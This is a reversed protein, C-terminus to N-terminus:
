WPIPKRDRLFQGTVSQPAEAALWVVTDAGEDVSRPASEGGMDTRVWGPCVSNVSIGKSKLSAALQRTVANLATKSISYTPADAEMDSLQGLGSSLNIIRGGETSKELYPRFFRAVLLPGLTNTTLTRFFAQRDVELISSEGEPFIGANNVLVDLSEHREGFFKAASQISVDDAVDLALSEVGGGTEEAIEQAAQKGDDANRTAVIVCFGRAALTRATERGIGRNAGTILVTKKSSNM